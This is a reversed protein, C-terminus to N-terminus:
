NCNCWIYLLLNKINSHPNYQEDSFPWFKLKMFFTNKNLIVISRPKRLKIQSYHKWYSITTYKNKIDIFGSQTRMFVSYRYIQNLFFGLRFSKFVGVRKKLMLRYLYVYKETLNFDATSIDASPVLQAREWVVWMETWPYLFMWDSCQSIVYIGESTNGSRMEWILSKYWLIHIEFAIRYLVINYDILM